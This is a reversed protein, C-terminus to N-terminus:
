TELRENVNRGRKQTQSIPERSDYLWNEQIYDRVSKIGRLRYHKRLKKMGSHFLNYAYQRSIGLVEAVASMDNKCYGCFLKGVCIDDDKNTM